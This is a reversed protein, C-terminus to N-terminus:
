PDMFNIPLSAIAGAFFLTMLRFVKKSVPVKDKIRELLCMVCRYLVSMLGFACAFKPANKLMNNLVKVPNRTAVFVFFAKLAIGRLFNQVFGESLCMLCKKYNGQGCCSRGSVASEVSVITEM